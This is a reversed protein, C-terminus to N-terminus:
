KIVNKLGSNAYCIAVALADAADDSKPLTALNLIVKVMIKIQQKSARGYNTLAQKVQLPTFEGLDLGHLGAALIIVGRAQSVAIATKVNKCFFLKEVAMASPRYKNIIENLGTNIENLRSQDSRGAKTKICGFDIMTLQSGTKEIVGFGVNALGPDIGLITITKPQVNSKPM